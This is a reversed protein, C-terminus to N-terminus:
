AADGGVLEADHVEGTEPDVRDPVELEPLSVGTAVSKATDLSGRTEDVRLTSALEVAKPMLKLVQKLATKREMWHEPDPIDGSSGVKGRRLARIQDATFVDFQLAGTQLEVIAYYHTVGGREGSAPKHHLHLSLGKDYEFEDNECVYEASIRKALPHQWFLKAVGQYGIILQCETTGARKDRYPVLYAEGNVGPELGLASATMLAGFFSERTCDLLRPTKRIETMVLRAIRDATIHRPLARQLEGTMRELDQIIAPKSSPKPATAVENSSTM